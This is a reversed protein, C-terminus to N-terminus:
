PVDRSSSNAAVVIAANLLRYLEESLQEYLRQDEGDFGLDNWSGMGGFVWAAQSAGLLRAAIEPVDNRPILDKQYLGDFPDGSTLRALGSEFCGAFGDERHARAFGAIKTLNVTLRAMLEDPGISDGPSSPADAAIRGYTVRWIRQDERDRDGVEWNAEWYDSGGPKVTEVLWRGGGGVFGVLMRDAPQNKGLENADSSGYLMRLTHVGDQKLREFWAVPDSAYATPEWRGGQRKLDVFRVYECFNFASNNPYFGADGVGFTGRLFANGWTTLSVIQAITGQM